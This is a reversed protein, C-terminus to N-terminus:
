GAGGNAAATAARHRAEILREILIEEVADYEEESIEGAELAEEAANLADQIAQPDYYANLAADGVKEILWRVGSMPLSVPFTLLTSLLGM